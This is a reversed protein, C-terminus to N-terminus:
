EKIGGHKKIIGEVLEIPVWGYVTETPHSPDSAYKIISEEKDSPYGCEVHTWPGINDQPTSYSRESAQVSISFGDNCKIAPMLPTREVRRFYENLRM